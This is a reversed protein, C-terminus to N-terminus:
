DGAQRLTQPPAVLLAMRGPRLRKLCDAHGAKGMAGRAASKLRGVCLAGGRNWRPRLGQGSGAELAVGIILTGICGAALALGRGHAPKEGALLGGEGSSWHWGAWAHSKCCAFDKALRMFAIADLPAHAFSQPAVDMQEGCAEIEDEMRAAEDEREFERFKFGLNHTDKMLCM